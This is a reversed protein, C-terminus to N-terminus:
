FRGRQAVLRSRCWGPREAQTWRHGEKDVPAIGCEGGRM